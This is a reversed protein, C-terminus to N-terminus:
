DPIFMAHRRAGEGNYWAKLHGYRHEYYHAYGGNECAWPTSYHGTSIVPEDCIPCMDPIRSMQTGKEWLPLEDPARHGGARLYAAVASVAGCDGGCHCQKSKNVMHPLDGPLGTVMYQTGVITVEIPASPPM